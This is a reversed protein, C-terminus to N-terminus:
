SKERLFVSKQLWCKRFVSYLYLYEISSSYLYICRLNLVLSSILPELINMKNAHDIRQNHTVYKLITNGGWDKFSGTQWGLSQGM